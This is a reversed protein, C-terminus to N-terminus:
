YNKKSDNENLRFDIAIQKDTWVCHTKMNQFIRAFFKRTELDAEYYETGLFDIIKYDDFYPLRDRIYNQTLTISIAEWGLSRMQSILECFLQDVSYTQYKCKRFLIQRSDHWYNGSHGCGIKDEIWRNAHEKLNRRAIEEERGYQILKQALKEENSYEMYEGQIKILTKM